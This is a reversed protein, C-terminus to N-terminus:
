GGCLLTIKSPISTKAFLYPAYYDFDCKVGLLPVDIVRSITARNKLWRMYGLEVYSRNQEIWDTGFCTGSGICMIVVVKFFTSLITLLTSLRYAVIVM